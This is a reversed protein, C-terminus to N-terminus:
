NVRGISDLRELLPVRDIASSISRSEGYLSIAILAAFAAYAAPGELTTVLLVGIMGGILSAGTDGLMAREHLTVWACVAVPGILAAIPALPALSASALCLTAATLALAKETRGPRTDLLNGLHAALALVGVDALYEAGHVGMGSAAYAALCITGIAKIAGTSIAGRALAQGHGRWGRPSGPLAGLWDDILGLCGVGGLFVLWHSFGGALALFSAALLVAGLPFAVAQGRYNTRRPV